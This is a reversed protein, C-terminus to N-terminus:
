SGDRVTGRRFGLCKALTGNVEDGVEKVLHLRHVDGPEMQSSTM